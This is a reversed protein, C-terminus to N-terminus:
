TNRVKIKRQTKDMQQALRARDATTTTGALRVEPKPKVKATTQPSFCTSVL